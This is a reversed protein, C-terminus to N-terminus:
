FPHSASFPRSRYGYLQVWVLLIESAQAQRTFPRSLLPLSSCKGGIKPCPDARSILAALSRTTNKGIAKTHTPLIHALQAPCQFLRAIV